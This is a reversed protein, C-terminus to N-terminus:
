SQFGPTLKTIATKPGKYVYFNELQQHKVYGPFARHSIARTRDPSLYPKRLVRIPATKTVTFTTTASQTKLFESNKDCFMYAKHGTITVVGAKNVAKKAQLYTISSPCRNRDPGAHGSPAAAAQGALATIGAATVAVALLRRGV